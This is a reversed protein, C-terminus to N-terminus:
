PPRQTRRSFSDQNAQDALGVTEVAVDRNPDLGVIGVSEDRAGRKRAWSALRQDDVVHPRGVLADM